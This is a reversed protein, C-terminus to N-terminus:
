CWGLWAQVSQMRDSHTPAHCDFISRVPTGQVKRLDESEFPLQKKMRGQPTNYEVTVMSSASDVKTVEAALWKNQSVSRVECADGEMLHSQFGVMLASKSKVNVLAAHGAHLRHSVHRDGAEEDDSSSDSDGGSEGSRLKLGM